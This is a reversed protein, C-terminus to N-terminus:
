KRIEVKSGPKLRLHGDTVVTEGERVGASVVVSGDLAQGTKVFSMSVTMDEKVVFVYEGQQGTQVAESPVVVAGAITGLTVTLNAFQGPWLAGDENSFVAKVLISGTAPDVTNDIFSLEGPVKRGDTVSATVPVKGETM